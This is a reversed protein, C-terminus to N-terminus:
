ETLVRSSVNRRKAIPPSKKFNTSDGRVILERQTTLVFVELGFVLDLLMNVIAECFAKASASSDFAQVNKLLAICPSAVAIPTKCVKCIYDNWGRGELFSRACM